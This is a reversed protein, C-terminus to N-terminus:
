FIIIQFINVAVYQADPFGPGRMNPTFSYGATVMHSFFCWFFNRCFEVVKHRLLTLM